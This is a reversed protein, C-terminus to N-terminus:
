RSSARFRVDLERMAAVLQERDARLGVFAQMLRREGEPTLHLHWARGDAASPRREILGAEETRKVLETVATQQMELLGALDTPRLPVGNGARIMLLLDYRQATLGAQLAVSEVRRVVHRLARRFEAVRVLEAEVV